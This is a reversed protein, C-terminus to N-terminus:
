ESKDDREDSAITVKYPLSNLGDFGNYVIAFKLNYEGSRPPYKYAAKLEVTEGPAIREVPLQSYIVSRHIVEEYQYFLAHLAVRDQQIIVEENTPNYISLPIESVLHGSSGSDPVKGSIDLMNFSYWEPFIKYRESGIGHDFSIEDRSYLENSVVIVERGQLALEDEMWLDYQNGSYEALNFSYTERGGSYFHYKAPSRYMNMFIVPRDGAVETIKNAWEKYGHTENRPNKDPPLIEVALVLRVFLIVILGIGAFWLTWRKWRVKKEIFFYSMYLMPIAAIATWNAEVRGRFVSLTFFIMVIYFTYKMACDYHDRQKFRVAAPFLVLSLLPGFIALQGAIYDGVFKWSWPQAGRRNFLHFKFTVWDNNWQWYLHPSVVIAAALLGLYFSKRKFLDINSLVLAVAFLFAHYKALGMLGLTIGLAVAMLLSDKYYYSKYLFLFLTLLCILPVDPAAFFGGVHMLAMGAILSFFLFEDEPDVMRWLWYITALSMLVFPLRVGLEGPIYSTLSILFGTLPPHDFYGWASRTSFVWYLAEDHFLGTFAAQVINLLLWFGLFGVLWSSYPLGAFAKKEVKVIDM